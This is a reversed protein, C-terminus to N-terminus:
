LGDTQTLEDKIQRLSQEVERQQGPKVTFHKISKERIAADERLAQKQMVFFDPNNSILLIGIVALGFWVLTISRFMMPVKLGVEETHYRESYEEDFYKTMDKTQVMWTTMIGFFFSGLGFGM